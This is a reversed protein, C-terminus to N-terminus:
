RAGLTVTATTRTGDREFAVAVSQGPALGRLVESYAALSALPTGDMEVLVDGARMGAQEAPSGAVLSSAKVGPGAFQFDPVIGFGARRPAVGPAAPAVPSSATSPGPATITATLPEPREALYAIAERVVTAVRVLGAVDVKDSTDGPRHYDQHPATFIQVAPIGHAIFSAQDSGELGQTAMQSQIGTVFGIGRFVHPWETATGSGIVGVAANGLRGVSDINVAARIGERPRVPASVYHRSGALGSEEASTAVFVVTRRSPGAAAMAKAVELVVAVGSANDDAGPHLRGADGARADPWGLGLHDYHATVVVSQDRWAPDTGPLLGVINALARSTGDPTRATTFPQRYSGDPLGPTLGAAEFQEVLYAAAKDLGATGVGRGEYEPSALTTVHTLLASESFVPPLTALPARTLALPPVVTGRSTAERLDVSLPSDSAQWQGKLMNVPEAGEFGLYSYKGYHPLKRGLGPVADVRDAVIWGLARTVDAPHRRVVIAAHDRLPLPQGDITMRDDTLQLSRGDALGRAHRNTRGILWVSRDAPLSAVETDLVLRPAHDPSRWGEVMARWASVMAAPEGAAIVVLPAPDGFLQGLSPPTERADLRRFTDFLPDVHLLVPADPVEARFAASAGTLPVSVTVPQGTTQVVVPVDLAFPAGGQSQAVMGEVVHRDGDRTVRVDGVALTPAGPRAIWDEFFRALDQKGVVEMVRRVDDFSARKGRYEHYFRALFTRFAEDGVKRRLAHFGMMTRGYGVAETAASHRGRFEVLPFDRAGTVYDRYKQLTSRRYVADEGRQEQMLHDAVYATLGESWNGHAEDVFVSNGWWNHLIEHPYSSTLIFPFRIVQPGLLTFSPMGYGTEWFNEVLAFKGYPYPGILARYMELYQATAALYKGALAADPEHLYVQAEAAGAAQTAMHLPGGVLHIQDVPVTTTWRARGSADRSTGDGESVIRWGDPQTVTLDFTVLERGLLPYWGTTGTLYVGQQGILGPTTRFGRTYEERVDSVPFDLAGAYELHLVTAEAPLTVAYRTMTSAMRPTGGEVDGLWAVDGLPRQHVVPESRTIQLRAHLLFEVERVGAPPRVDARVTIRATAPELRVDLTHHPPAQARSPLISAGLLVCLLGLVRRM